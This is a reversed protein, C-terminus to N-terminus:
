KIQEILDLYKRSLQAWQSGPALKIVQKLHEIALDMKKDKIFLQAMEYHAQPFKPNLSVAIKLSDLAKGFHEHDMYALALNLRIAANDKLKIAELWEREADPFKGLNYYSLALWNYVRHPLPTGPRKLDEKFNKAAQTWDGKQMYLRGIQRYADKSDPNIELTKKLEKEAKDLDGDLFYSTGLHLHYNANQPDLSVAEQFSAIMEKRKNISGYELGEQFKKQGPSSNKEIVSKEETACGQLVAGALGLAAILFVQRIWIRFKNPSKDM